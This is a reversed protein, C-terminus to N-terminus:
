NYQLTKKRLSERTRNVHMQVETTQSNPFPMMACVNTNENSFNHEMVTTRAAQQLTSLGCFKSKSKKNWLKSHISENANQTRGKLCRGMLQDTTLSDYVEQVKMKENDNLSLRVKMTDHSPINLKIM